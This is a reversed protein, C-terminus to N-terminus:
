EGKTACADPWSWAAPVDGTPRGLVPKQFYIQERKEYETFRPRDGITWDSKSTIEQPLKQIEHNIFKPM